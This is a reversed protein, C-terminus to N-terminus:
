HSRVPVSGSHSASMVLAEFTALAPARQCEDMSLPIVITQTHPSVLITPTDISRITSSYRPIVTPKFSDIKQTFM